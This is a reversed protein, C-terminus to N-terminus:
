DPVYPHPNKCAALIAPGNDDIINKWGDEMQQQTLGGVMGPLGRKEVVTEEGDVGTFIVKISM